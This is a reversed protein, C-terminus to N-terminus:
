SLKSEISHNFSGEESSTYEPVSCCSVFRVYDKCFVTEAPLFDVPDSQSVWTGEFIYQRQKEADFGDVGQLNVSVHNARLQEESLAATDTSSPASALESNVSDPNNETPGSLRKNIMYANNTEAQGPELKALAGTAPSQTIKNGAIQRTENSTFDLSKIISIADQQQQVNKKVDDKAPMLLLGSKDEPLEASIEEDEVHNDASTMEPAPSEKFQSVALLSGAIVGTLVAALVYVSFGRKKASAVVPAATKNTQNIDPQKVPKPEFARNEPVPDIPPIFGSGQEQTEADRSQEELLGWDPVDLKRVTNGSMISVAGGTFRRENVAHSNNAQNLAITGDVDTDVEEKAEVQKVEEVEEVPNEEENGSSLYENDAFEIKELLEAFSATNDFILTEDSLEELVSKMDEINLEHKQEIYGHFLLRGCILHIIRPVGGSIHHAMLVVSRAIAPDGKWGAHQLRHTVYDITETETLPEMHSSAVVRQRLQEM